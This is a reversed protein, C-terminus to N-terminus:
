LEREAMGEQLLFVITHLASHQWIIRNQLTCM